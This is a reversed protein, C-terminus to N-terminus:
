PLDGKSNVPKGALQSQAVNGPYAGSQAIIQARQAPRVLERRRPDIKARALAVQGSILATYWCRSRGVAFIRCLAPRLLM